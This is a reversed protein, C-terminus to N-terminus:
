VMVLKRKGRFLFFFWLWLFSRVSMLCIEREREERERKKERECERERERERKGKLPKMVGQKNKTRKQNVPKDTIKTYVNRCAGYGYSCICSFISHIRNSQM